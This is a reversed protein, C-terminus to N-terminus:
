GIAALSPFAEQLWFALDTFSGTILMLGITWLLLGSVREVKEMHRKFRNMIRTARGIFIAALVFPLGLGIAYALMMFVGKMIEGEIAVMGLITGLIPGLCPSWGFAFALGLIYAGFASGGQDGADMRAEQYLFPIRFIGLFHLGFVMIIIGGGITMAGKYEALGRGLGSSVVGLIIFVTSLGMVFFLSALVVKGNRGKELDDMSTGAMYALYPPVIPLVCPSLFSIMGALLAIFLSSLLTADMVDIGFM